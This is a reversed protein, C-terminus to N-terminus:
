GNAHKREIRNDKRKFRRFEGAAATQHATSREGGPWWCLARTSDVSISALDASDIGIGANKCLCGRNAWRNKQRHARSSSNRPVIAAM